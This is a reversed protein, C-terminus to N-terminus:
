VGLRMPLYCGTQGCDEVQRSSAGRRYRASMDALNAGRPGAGIMMAEKCGTQCVGTARKDTSIRMDWDANRRRIAVM